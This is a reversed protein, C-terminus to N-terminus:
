SEDLWVISRKLMVAEFILRAAKSVYKRHKILDRVPPANDIRIVKKKIKHRKYMQRVTEPAVTLGGVADVGLATREVLTRGEM